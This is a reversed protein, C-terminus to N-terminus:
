KLSNFRSLITRYSDQTFANRSLVASREGLYNFQTDVIFFDMDDKPYNRVAEAHKMRELDYEQSTKKKYKLYLYNDSPVYGIPVIGQEKLYPVLELDKEDKLSYWVLVLESHTKTLLDKLLSVKKRDFFLRKKVDKRYDEKLLIPNFFLVRKM